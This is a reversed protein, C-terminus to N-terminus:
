ANIPLAAALIALNKKFTASVSTPPPPAAKKNSETVLNQDKRFFQTRKLAEKWRDADTRSIAEKVTIDNILRKTAEKGPHVRVKPAMEFCFQCCM